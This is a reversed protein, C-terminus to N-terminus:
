DSRREGNVRVLIEVGVLVMVGGFLLVIGYSSALRAADSGNVSSFGMALMGATLGLWGAVRLTRIAIGTAALGRRAM